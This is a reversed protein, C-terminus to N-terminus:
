SVSGRQLNILSRGAAMRTAAPVKGSSVEGRRDHFAKALSKATARDVANRAEPRQITVITIGDQKRIGVM